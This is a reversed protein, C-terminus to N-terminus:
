RGGPGLRCWRRILRVSFAVKAFIDFRRELVQAVNDLADEIRSAVLLSRGFIHRLISVILEIVLNRELLELLAELLSVIRHFMTFVPHGVFIPDMILDLIHDRLELLLIVFGVLRSRSRLVVFAVSSFFGLFGFEHILAVILIRDFPQRLVSVIFKVVVNRELLEPITEPLTMYCHLVTAGLRRVCFPDIILDVIHDRLDLLLIVFVFGILKPKLVGRARSLHCAVVM